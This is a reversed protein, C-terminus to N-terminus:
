TVCKKSLEGNLVNLIISIFQISHALKIMIHRFAKCGNNMERCDFQVLASIRSGSRLKYGVLQSDMEPEINKNNM